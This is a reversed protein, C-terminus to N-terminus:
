RTSFRTRPQTFGTKSISAVPGAASGENAAAAQGMACELKCALRMPSRDLRAPMREGTTSAARAAGREGAPALLLTHEDPRRRHHPLGTAQKYRLSGPSPGLGGPM